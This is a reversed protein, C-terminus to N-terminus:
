PRKRSSDLNLMSFLDNGFVPPPNTAPSITAFLKPPPFDFRHPAKAKLAVNLPIYSLSNKWWEDVKDFCAINWLLLLCSLHFKYSKNGKEGHSQGLILILCNGDGYTGNYILLVGPIYKTRYLAKAYTQNWVFFISFKWESYLFASSWDSSFSSALLALDIKWLRSQEVVLQLRGNRRCYSISFPWIAHRWPRYIARIHVPLCPRNMRAFTPHARFIWGCHGM